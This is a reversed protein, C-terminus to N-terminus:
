GPVLALLNVFFSFLGFIYLITMIIALIKTVKPINFFLNPISTLISPKPSSLGEIKEGREIDQM